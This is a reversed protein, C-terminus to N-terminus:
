KRVINVGVNAVPNDHVSQHSETKRASIQASLDQSSSVLTRKTAMGQSHSTYTIEGVSDSWGLKRHLRISPAYVLNTNSNRELKRRSTKTRKQASSGLRRDM